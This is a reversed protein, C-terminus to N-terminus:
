CAMGVAIVILDEIDPEKPLVDRYFEKDAQNVVYVNM